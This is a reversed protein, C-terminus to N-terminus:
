RFHFISKPCSFKVREIICARIEEVSENEVHFALFFQFVIPSSYLGIGVLIFHMDELFTM